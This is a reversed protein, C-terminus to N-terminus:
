LNKIENLLQFYNDGPLIKGLVAPKGGSAETNGIRNHLTQNAIVAFGVGERAKDDIGHDSFREVKVSFLDALDKMLVPNFSGGGGVIITGIRHPIFRDMQDKISEATFRTLTRIVDKQPVDEESIRKQVYDETFYERGTSKPPSKRFYDDDLLKMLLAENISGGGAFEGNEDYDRGTFKKMFTDILMNGPGTDFAILRDGIYTINSIGGINLTVTGEEGFLLKDSLPILPAGDGGMSLDTTRFDFIVTKRTRSFIESPEGIQLTGKDRKGLSPGHFVTYGSFAVVDYDWDLIGLSEGVFRGLYWHAESFEESTLPKMTSVKLLMERLSDSFPFEVHQLVRVRTTEDWGNIELLSISLGDTSTGTVVSAFKM